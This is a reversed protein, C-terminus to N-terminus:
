ERRFAGGAPLHKEVRAADRAVEYTLTVGRPPFRSPGSGLPTRM